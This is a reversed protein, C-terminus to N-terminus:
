VLFAFALVIHLFLYGNECSQILLPREYIRAACQVTAWTSFMKQMIDLSKLGQSPLEQRPTKQTTSSSSSHNASSNSSSSSASHSSSCSSSVTRAAEAM